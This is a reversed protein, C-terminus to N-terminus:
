AAEFVEELRQAVRRWDDASVQAGTPHLIGHAPRGFVQGQTMLRRRGSRDHLTTAADTAQRDFTDIGLILLLKPESVEVYGALEGACFGALEDRLPVPLDNWQYRSPRDISSSKFFQFNSQMSGHLVNRLRGSAFISRLKRALPWQADAIHSQAPWSAEVHPQHDDAGFGPNEGIIMMGPSYIPPGSLISFGCAGDFIDCGRARWLQNVREYMRAAYREMDTQGM